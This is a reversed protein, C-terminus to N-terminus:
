KAANGGAIRGFVILDAIANGGLRNAGHIGGTVEGAAYLGEIPEGDTDIVRAEENIKIGGMTHHIAPAIKQIYYPGEKLELLAGRRNFDEDEGQRAYENYQEITETLQEADIDFFEAAEEITDAKVIQDRKKLDEFETMYNDMNSNEKIHNDWMLYGVSDTQDLIAESVVDRRELEEVFREGEKNVKIAGDFRTDAVYSLHGTQTDCAPYTQIFEMDVLDAGIEKAMLIGDGTSGAQNTTNYRDDIEPNYEQTMDINAGFGGSALVVGDKAEITATEGKHDEAVVGVVSGEEDTVLETVETNYKIPIDDAKAREALSSIIEQGSGGVPYLARAVEHGGFHMLYDDIFEVGVYDRMWEGDETVNEALTRVLDEDAEHDGGALTDEVFQEVSDDIDLNDQVWSNPANFEGGSVLTNGGIFPMKELVVVDAGQANAEIASVLGAGGGGVVVVDYSSDSIESANDVEVVEGKFYDEAGAEELAAEVAGILGSSTLTAGSITDVNTNNNEIIAPIIEEFAPDTLIETEKHSLVEIDSIEEDEVTVEVEIDANHGYSSGTYTGDEFSLETEAVEEDGGCGVSLTFLLVFSLMLLLLSRKKFM